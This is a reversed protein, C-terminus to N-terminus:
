ATLCIVRARSVLWLVSGVGAYANEIPTSSFLHALSRDDRNM